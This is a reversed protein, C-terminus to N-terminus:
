RVWKAVAIAIIMLVVCPIALAVASGIIIHHHAWAVLTFSTSLLALDLLWMSAIRSPSAVIKSVPKIRKLVSKRMKLTAEPVQESSRLGKVSASFMSRSSQLEHGWEVNRGTIDILTAPVVVGFAVVSPIISWLFSSAPWYHVLVYTSAPVISTMLLMLFLLVVSKRRSSKEIKKLEETVQRVGSKGSLDLAPMASSVTGPIQQKGLVFGKYAAIRM